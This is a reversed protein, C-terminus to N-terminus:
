SPTGSRRKFALVLLLIAALIDIAIKFYLDSPAAGYIFGAFGAAMSGYIAGIVIATTDARNWTPHAAWRPVLILIAGAIILGATVPIIPAVQPAIGFGMLCLAYWASAWVLGGLVLISPHPPRLPKTPGALRDRFPGIAAGILVLILIAAAAVYAAPPAYPPLHFFETRANEWSFRAVVSGLAFLILVITLGSRNVWSDDRRDPFILETLAIPVFAVLIVEYVLAWLLYVYNIGFARAYVEGQLQIVVPALSTQQILCEEALALSLALLLMNRWGLKWHRVAARVLLAGGGWVVVEIPYVFIASFRTAGPLIEAVLPALLMLSLGPAIRSRLSPLENTAM